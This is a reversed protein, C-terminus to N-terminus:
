GMFKFSVKAFLYKKLSIGFEGPEYPNLQISVNMEEM